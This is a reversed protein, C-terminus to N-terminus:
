LGWRAKDLPKAYRWSQNGWASRQEGIHEALDLACLRFGMGRLKNCTELDEGSTKDPLPGIHQWMDARFSWCSGPISARVLAREGGADVVGEPQNWPYDPELHLSCLAVDPPAAKWFSELRRRWNATYEMDDASFLVVDPQKALALGVAINTAKGVTTRVIATGDTIYSLPYQAKVLADISGDNSGGDFLVLSDAEYVLSQMTRRLDDLRGTSLANYTLVAAAMKM